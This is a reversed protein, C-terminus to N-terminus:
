GNGGERAKMRALIGAISMDEKPLPKSGWRPGGPAFAGGDIAPGGAIAARAEALRRRSEWGKRSAASRTAITNM